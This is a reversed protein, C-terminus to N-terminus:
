FLKLSRIPIGNKGYRRRWYQASKFRSQQFVMIQAKNHGSCERECVRLDDEGQPCSFLRTEPGFKEM